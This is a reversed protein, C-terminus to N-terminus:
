GSKGVGLGGDGVPTKSWLHPKITKSNTIRVSETKKLTSEERTLGSEAGSRARLEQGRLSLSKSSGEARAAVKCSVM